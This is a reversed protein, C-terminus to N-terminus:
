LLYIVLLLKLGEYTKTIAFGNFLDCAEEARLPVAFCSSRPDVFYVLGSLRAVLEGLVVVLAVLLTVLELGVVSPDSGVAVVLVPAAPVQDPEAATAATLGVVAPRRPAFQATALAVPAVVVPAVPLSLLATQM